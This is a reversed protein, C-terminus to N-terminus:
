QCPQDRLIKQLHKYFVTLNHIGRRKNRNSARFLVTEVSISSCIKCDCRKWPKALLTRKYLQLYKNVKFDNSQQSAKESCILPKSYNMIAELAVDLTVEGRDFQRVRNLADMELKTLDEQRFTGTKIKRGLTNNENVQPIRIATYYELTDDNKLEYYNQKEDKFARILPSTTDFSAIKYQTFQSLTDAKAFGLLHVRLNNNKTAALVGQIAAHIEPPMLPVLGGIAVYDYGMAILRRTAEQMSGPSWGQVVGIPHFKVQQSKCENIFQEALELTIDFRKRADESGGEMGVGNPDFDFIIHDISFGYDFRADEYFEITDQPTYPPVDLKCYQFAGNDGFMPMAKFEPSDFRLFKRAGDRRFRMRQAESYQSSGPFIHDGVIARSVLIGDYPAYGLYEHPFQDDWYPKRGKHYEDNEFDYEPDIFDLCDAFIFKM